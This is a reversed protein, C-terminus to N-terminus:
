PTCLIQIYILIDHETGQHKRALRSQLLRSQLVSGHGATEISAVDCRLPPIRKVPKGRVCIGQPGDAPLHQAIGKGQGGLVYLFGNVLGHYINRTCEPLLADSLTKGNNQRSIHEKRLLKVRFSVNGSRCGCQRVADILMYHIGASDRFGLGNLEKTGQAIHGFRIRFGTKIECMAAIIAIVRFLIGYPQIEVIHVRQIAFIAATSFFIRNWLIGQFLLQLVMRLNHRNLALREM